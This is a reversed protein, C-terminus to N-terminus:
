KAKEIKYTPKGTSVTRAAAFISKLSTPWGNFKTESVKMVTDIYDMVPEGMERLANAAIKLEDQDWEVKKPLDAIVVFSGEKLRITGTDKSAKRREDAAREGFKENTAAALIDSLNSVNAKAEALQAHLNAIQEVDLKAIDALPMGVIDWLDVSNKINM